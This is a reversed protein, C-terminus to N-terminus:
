LAANPRCVALLSISAMVRPPGRGPGGVQPPMESSSRELGRGCGGELEWRWNIKRGPEANPFFNCPSATNKQFQTKQLQHPIQPHSSASLPNNRENMPAYIIKIPEHANFFRSQLSLNTGPGPAKCVSKHCTM